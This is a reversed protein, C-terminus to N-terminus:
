SAASVVQRITEDLIEAMQAIEELSVTLAPMLRLSNPRPSNLLLGRRFAEAVIQPGIERKLDLALSLGLGRVGGMGYKASIAQLRSRLAEGKAAVEDLFGPQLLTEMVACGAATALPNGNYTGGQDGSEFCSVEDRAVLASLPMGGGIGKGLTLIDPEIGFHRYAFMRGTRGMGTQVEDLILLIGRKRTLERLGTLFEPTAPIVGAEGQIPELMVAATRESVAAEVAALDNLPVKPFGPVKPDFLGRWQPKGSASMTALTRGHFGNEMTVIEYAGNRFKQGWRRALKIAGENAEAGSNAFFVKGLGSHRVILDALRMAPENYFAPSPNILKGAQAQLVKVVPEPCHGLANVAWGQIFDLYANGDRDKLWSGQGEVFVAPPRDAIYMLSDFAQPAKPM